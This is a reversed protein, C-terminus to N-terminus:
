VTSEQVPKGSYAYTGNGAGIVKSRLLTSSIGSYSYAGNNAYQIRNNGGLGAFPSQAFSSIGFM